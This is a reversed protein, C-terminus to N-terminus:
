FFMSKIIYMNFYIAAQYNNVDLSMFKIISQHMKKKMVEFQGKWNLALNLYVGLIRISEHDNIIVINTQHVELKTNIQVIYQKRHFYEWKWSYFM